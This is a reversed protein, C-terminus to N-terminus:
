SCIACACTVTVAALDHANMVATFCAFAALFPLEELGRADPDIVLRARFRISGDPELRAVPQGLETRIEIASGCGVPEIQYSRGGAFHLLGTGSWGSPTLSALTGTEGRRRIITQTQWFGVREIELLGGEFGVIALARFMSPIALRALTTEAAKLEYSRTFAKPQVWALDHDLFDRISRM